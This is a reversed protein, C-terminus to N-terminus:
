ELGKYDHEVEEAKEKKKGWKKVKSLRYAFTTGESLIVTQAGRSGARGTVTVKDDESAIEADMEGEFFSALEAEMVVWVGSVIRGDKGEDALERRVRDDHNIVYQIHNTPISLFCLRARAEKVRELNLSGAVRANVGFVKLVGNVAVEGWSASEWDVSFVASKIDRGELSKAKVTGSVELSNVGLLPTKKEGFSGLEVQPAGKRFYNYGDPAKFRGDTIKIAM